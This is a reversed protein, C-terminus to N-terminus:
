TQRMSALVVAAETQDELPQSKVPTMQYSVPAAVAAAARIEDATPLKAQGELVAARREHYSIETKVVQDMLVEKEMWERKRIVEMEDAQRKLIESEEETWMLERRLYQYLQVPGKAEEDPTFGLDPPYSSTWETSADGNTDGYTTAGSHDEASNPSAKHILKVRRSTKAAPQMSKPIPDSPRLAETEHVTRMHKALADSRTFARDCEWECTYKKQRTEIHENHIHEVLRDMNDLDGAECGDWACITVQEHNDDDEPRSNNPSNPVEGDTDSSEEVADFDVQHSTPTARRSTDELKQRKAPPMHATVTGYDPEFADSSITSLPSGPPSDEM